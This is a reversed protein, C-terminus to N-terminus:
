LFFLAFIRVESQASTDGDVPLNDEDDTETVPEYEVDSDDSAGLPLAETDSTDRAYDVVCVRNGCQDRGVRSGNNECTSIFAVPFLESSEKKM